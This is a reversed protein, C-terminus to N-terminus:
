ALYEAKGVIMDCVALLWIQHINEVINYARSNLWFNISGLKRLPNDKDFGTFTIVRASKERASKAANLINESRGSSSILVVVDGEDCYSEIAKSLWHEYGYDNAFCTILDAENFNIARVKAQKTFDVAAHSAMAASGGNGAIIVKKGVRHASQILQKADVLLETVDTALASLYREFYDHLFEKSM